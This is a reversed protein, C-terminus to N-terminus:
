IWCLLNYYILSGIFKEFIYFMWFIQGWDHLLGFCILNSSNEVMKSLVEKRFHRWFFFISFLGCLVMVMGSTQYQHKSVLHRLFYKSRLSLFSHTSPSLKFILFKWLNWEEVLTIDREARFRIGFFPRRWRDSLQLAPIPPKPKLIHM